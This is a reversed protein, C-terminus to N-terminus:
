EEFEILSGDVVVMPIRAFKSWNTHLNNPRRQFLLPCNDIGLVQLEKLNAMWEPLYALNGCDEIFFKSLMPVFQLGVPISVLKPLSGFQLERLNKLCEFETGIDFVDDCLDLEDCEEVILGELSTLHHFTNSMTTFKPCSKIHLQKLSTFINHMWEEPLCELDQIGDIGLYTLPSSFSTKNKLVNELSKLSGNRLELRQVSPILPVSILNPCSDIELYELCCFQLLRPSPYSDRWWGKLNPCESLCLTELSPFFLSEYNGTEIFELDDLKKLFLQQLYPFHHLPPFRHCRRCDNITIRVLKTLSSVWSPFQIRGNGFVEIWKLNVHPRLEEISLIAEDSGSSEHINDDYSGGLKWALRVLHLHQKMQLSAANFEVTPNQVYKLNLIHLRKRLNNLKGLEGLRSGNINDKAVIFTSLYQLFSLQSMKSPMHTLSVCGWLQLHRLNILQQFDAPLQKLKRCKELNLVQLNHLKTISDPLIEIKKNSSLDLYRLHRMEGISHPIRNIELSTVVLARVCKLKSFMAHLTGEKAEETNITIFSRLKRVTSLTQLVQKFSSEELDAWMHRCGGKSALVQNLNLRCTEDGAVLVALDYMLDHMRCFEIDGFSDETVEQFFSRWMLEKFYENGVNEYYEKSDTLKIYGQAMWLNLLYPAYIKDGKPFLRCYAFCHKLHSPLHDYSLKLIALIGSTDIGNIKSLEKDKIILWDSLSKSRLLGGLARIALPVGVCKAVIEKGVKEHELSVVDEQGFCMKKFLSWSENDSLGQLEHVLESGVIEAAHRLRTTVIMRSGRAGGVLLDRLRIWKELSENWVDDFVILYRKGNIREHLLNKMNNMGLDKPKDGLVCELMKEVILKVDFNDSVHVWLKLEFHSKVTEDNWVLQALLTKGVGGLGVISITRVNKNHDNSHLLSQIIANKDDVRGIVVEPLSSHSEREVSSVYSEERRCENLHFNKNAAIADLKSKMKKIKYAMKRAYTFQNSSSFFIRVKKLMRNGSMVQEHLAMTSFEDVLDDADYFADRLLNVWNKVQNSESSKKEADLLVAQITSVTIKLNEIEDQVGWLLSAQQIIPSALKSIIQGAISFLAAEAM